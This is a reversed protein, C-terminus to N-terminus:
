KWQKQEDALLVVQWIDPPSKFLAIFNYIRWHRDKKLENISMRLRKLSFFDKVIFNNGTM